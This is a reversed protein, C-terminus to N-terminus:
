DVSNSAASHTLKRGNRGGSSAGRQKSHTVPSVTSFLAGRAFVCLVALLPSFFPDFAHRLSRPTKLSHLSRALPFAQTERLSAFSLTAYPFALVSPMEKRSALTCIPNRIFKLTVLGLFPILHKARQSRRARRPSVTKHRQSLRPVQGKRM